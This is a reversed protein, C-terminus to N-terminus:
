TLAQPQRQITQLVEFQEISTAMARPFYENLWYGRMQEATTTFLVFRAAPQLVRFTERFCEQPHKFHHHVFTAVAGAFSKSAFAMADASALNWRIEPGKHKARELMTTSLDLGVMRMGLGFLGTTYNGTGCGVDLYDGHANSGLHYLLRGLIYPDACRTNDYGGGITDYLEM